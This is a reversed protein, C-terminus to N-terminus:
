RYFLHEYRFHFIAQAADYALISYKYKSNSHLIQAYLALAEAGLHTLLPPGLSSPLSDLFSNLPLKAKGLIFVSEFALKEATPFDELDIMHLALTFAVQAKLFSVSLFPYLSQLIDM